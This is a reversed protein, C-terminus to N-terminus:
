PHDCGWPGARPASSFAPVSKRRDRNCLRHRPYRPRKEAYDSPPVIQAELKEVIRRKLYLSRYGEPGPRSLSEQAESFVIIQRMIDIVNVNLQPPSNDRVASETVSVSSWPEAVAEVGEPGIDSTAAFLGSSSIGAVVSVHVSQTRIAVSFLGSRWDARSCTSLLSATCM